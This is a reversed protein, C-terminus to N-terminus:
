RGTGVSVQLRAANVSGVQAVAVQGPPRTTKFGAVAQSLGLGSFSLRVAAQQVADVMVAADVHREPTCAKLLELVAHHQGAVPGGCLAVLHSDLDRVRLKKDLQEALQVLM